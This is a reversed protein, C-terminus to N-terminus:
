VCMKSIVGKLLRIRPILAGQKFWYPAWQDHNIDPNEAYLEPFKLIINNSTKTVYVNNVKVFCLYHCYGYNTKFFNRGFIRSLQYGWLMRKYIRLRTKFSFIDM